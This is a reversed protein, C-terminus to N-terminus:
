QDARAVRRAPKEKIYPLIKEFSPRQTPFSRIPRNRHEQQDGGDDIDVHIIRQAPPAFRSPTPRLATPSAPASASWCIAASSRGTCGFGHRAHRDHRPEADDDDPVCGIAMMTHASPIEAKRMLALLESGADSIEVGGGYYIFPREAKDIMDAVTKLQEESIDYTEHVEVRSKPIFERRRPLSM